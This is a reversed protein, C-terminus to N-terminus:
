YGRDILEQIRHKDPASRMDRVSSNYNSGAANAKQKLYNFDTNADARGKIQINDVKSEPIAFLTKGAGVTPGADNREHSKTSETLVNPKSFISSALGIVAAPAIAYKFINGVGVNMISKATEGARQFQKELNSVSKSNSMMSILEDTKNGAIRAGAEHAKLVNELNATSSVEAYSLARRAQKAEINMAMAAHEAAKDIAGAKYLTSTMEDQLISSALNRASAGDSAQGFSLQDFIGQLKLARDQRSASAYKNKGRLIDLTELAENKLIAEKSQHKAKIINEVFVHAFDEGKFFQAAEGTQTLQERLGVHINRFENSFLGINAKELQKQSTILQALETDLASLADVPQKGSKPSLDRMRLMSQYYERGIDSQKGTMGMFDMLQSKAEKNTLGIVTVPDKDFDIMGGQRMMDSNALFVRGGLSDLTNPMSGGTFDEAVRIQVPIVSHSGEIPEKTLLGFFEGKRAQKLAADGHMRRIDDKSMAVLPAPINSGLGMKEGLEIAAENMGPLSSTAQGYMSGKVKGKLLAGALSERVLEQQRAYRLAKAELVRPDIAPNAAAEILDKTARDYMTLRDTTGIQTGIYPAMYDQSFVSAKNITQTRGNMEFSISRGLDVSLTQSGGTLSKIADSRIELNQSFVANLKKEAFLSKAMSNPAAADAELFTDLRTVPDQDRIFRSMLNESVKDLGQAELYMMGRETFTGIGGMGSQTSHFDASLVVQSVRASSRQGKFKSGALIDALEMDPHNKQIQAIVRKQNQFSPDSIDGLAEIDKIRGEAKATSVYGMVAAPMRRAEMTRGSMKVPSEVGIFDIDQFKELLGSEVIEDISGVRGMKMRYENQALLLATNTQGKVTSKVAGFVKSGPAISYETQMGISIENGDARMNIIKNTLNKAPLKSAYAMDESVGMAEYELRVSRTEKLQQVIEESWRKREAAPISTNSRVGRLENFMRKESEKLIQYDENIDFDLLKLKEPGLSALGEPTQLIEGLEKHDKLGLKNVLKTFLGDAAPTSLMDADIKSTYLPNKVKFDKGIDMILEEDAVEGIGRFADSYDTIRSLEDITTQLEEKNVYAYKFEGVGLDLGGFFDTKPRLSPDFSSERFYQYAAPSVGGSPLASHIISEPTTIIGKAFSSASGAMYEPQSVIHRMFDKRAKSSLESFPDVIAEGKRLEGVVNQFQSLQESDGQYILADQIQRYYDRPNTVGSSISDIEKTYKELLAIHPDVIRLKSTGLSANDVVSRVALKNQLNNGFLASGDRSVPNLPFTYSAGKFKGRVFMEGIEGANNAKYFTNIENYGKDTLMKTFEELAGPLEGPNRYGMGKLRMPSELLKYKLSKEAQLTPSLGLVDSIKVSGADQATAARKAKSQVSRLRNVKGAFSKESPNIPTNSKLDKFTKAIGYAGGGILTARGALSFYDTKETEFEEIM